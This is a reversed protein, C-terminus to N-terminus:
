TNVRSHLSALFLLTAKVSKYGNVKSRSILPRKSIDSQELYHGGWHLAGLAKLLILITDNNIANCIVRYNM